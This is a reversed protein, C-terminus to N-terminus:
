QQVMEKIMAKVMVRVNSILKVEREEQKTMAKGDLEYQQNINSRNGNSCESGENSKDYRVNSIM